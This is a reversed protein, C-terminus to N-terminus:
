GEGEDVGKLLANFQMVIKQFDHCKTANNYKEAQGKGPPNDTGMQAHQGQM